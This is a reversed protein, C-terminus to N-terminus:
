DAPNQIQTRVSQEAQRALTQRDAPPLPAFLTIEATIPPGAVARWVGRILTTVAFSHRTVTRGRRDTYRLAAAQVPAGADLAAQLLRPQFRKVGRGDTTRGEAFLVVSRGRRLADGIDRTAQEAGHGRAIFLTGARRALWGLAPWAAVESKALFLVPWRAGFVMTDLWSIHNSVLLAGRGHARGRGLGPAPAPAAADVIAIGPGRYQCRVGLLVVMVRNWRMAIRNFRARGSDGAFAGSGDRGAAACVALGFLLTLLILLLRFAGVIARAVAAVTAGATAAVTAGIAAITM